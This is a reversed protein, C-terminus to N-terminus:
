PPPNRPRLLLRYGVFEEGSRSTLDGTRHWGLREYLGTESLGPPTVLVLEDLGALEAVQRVEELLARGVGKGQSQPLVMVHTVEGVQHSPAQEPSDGLTSSGVSDGKAVRHRGSRLRVGAFARDVAGLVMKSLGHVYRVLRTTLLDRALLPHTVSRSILCFTLAVGHRKVMARYHSAPRLAGLLVGTVEGDDDVAALAICHATDLWARHYRRLFRDGCRALFEMDLVESHM